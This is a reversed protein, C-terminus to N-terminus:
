NSTTKCCANGCIYIPVIILFLAGFVVQMSFTVLAFEWLSTDKLDDCSNKWIEIGGWSAFGVEVAGLCIINCLVAEIPRKENKKGNLRLFTIIVSVLVYVWLTSNECDKSTKYDDVLFIIGFVIYACYCVILGLLIIIGLLGCFIAICDETNNEKKLTTEKCECEKCMICQKNYPTESDQVASM